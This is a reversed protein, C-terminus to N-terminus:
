NHKHINSWDLADRYFKPLLDSNINIFVVAQEMAWWSGSEYAKVTALIYYLTNKEEMLADKIPEPFPLRLLLQEMPRDLIADLLSFLGTLFASNAQSPAIKKAILECFRARIICMKILENPKTQAVHATIILSVFKKIHDHGLYVLAQKLSEIEKQVPFVGSNILRLLKFALATDLQFLRAIANIDPHEKM